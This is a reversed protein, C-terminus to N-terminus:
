HDMSIIKNLYNAHLDDTENRSKIEAAWENKTLLSYNMEDPWASFPQKPQRILNIHANWLSLRHTIVPLIWFMRSSTVFTKKGEM